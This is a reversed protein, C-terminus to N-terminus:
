DYCDSVIREGDNKMRQMVDDIKKNIRSNDTEYIIYDYISELLDYTYEYNDDSDDEYVNLERYTKKSGYYNAM